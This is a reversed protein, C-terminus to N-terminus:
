GGNDGDSTPSSLPHLLGVTFGGSHNDNREVTTSAIPSLSRLFPLISYPPPHLLNFCFLTLPNGKNVAAAEEM